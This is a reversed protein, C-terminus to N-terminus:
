AIVTIIDNFRKITGIWKHGKAYANLKSAEIVLAYTSIISERSNYLMMAFLCKQKNYLVHGIGGLKCLGRWCIYKINFEISKMVPFPPHNTIKRINLNMKNKTLEIENYKKWKKYFIVM